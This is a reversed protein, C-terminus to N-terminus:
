EKNADHQAVAARKEDASGVSPLERDKLAQELGKGALYGEEGKQPVTFPKNVQEEVEDPEEDSGADAAEDTEVQDELDGSDESDSEDAGQVDQAAKEDDPAASADHEYDVGAEDAVESPVLFYGDPSFVVVSVDEGIAKAAGLLRGAFAAPGGQDTYHVKVEDSM